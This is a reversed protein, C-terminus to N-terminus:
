ASKRYKERAAERRKGEGVQYLPRGGLRAVGLGTGNPLAALELAAGSLYIQSKVAAGKPPLRVSLDGAM